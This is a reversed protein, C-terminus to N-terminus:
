LEQSRNTWYVHQILFETTVGLYYHESHHQRCSDNDKAQLQEVLSYAHAWLPPSHSKCLRNGPPAESPEAWHESSFSGSGLGADTEGGVAREPKEFCRSEPSPSRGTVTPLGCPWSFVAAWENMLWSSLPPDSPLLLPLPSLTDKLFALQLFSLPQSKLCQKFRWCFSIIIASLFVVIAVASLWGSACAWWQKSNNRPCSCFGGERAPLLFPASVPPAWQSSLLFWLAIFALCSQLPLPLISKLLM